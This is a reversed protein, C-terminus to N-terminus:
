FIDSYDPHSYAGSIMVLSNLLDENTPETAMNIEILGDKHMKSFLDLIEEKSIGMSESVLNGTCGDRHANIFYLIKKIKEM